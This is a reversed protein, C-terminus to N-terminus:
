YRCHRRSFLPRFHPPTALPPPLPSFSLRRVAAAAAAIAPSIAIIAAAFIFGIAAYRRFHRFIIHPLSTSFRRCYPSFYAFALSFSLWDIFVCHSTDFHGALCYHHRFPPPQRFRFIASPLTAIPPPPTFPLRALPPMNALTAFRCHSLQRFAFHLRSAFIDAPPLTPMTFVLPLSVADAPSFRSVSLQFLRLTLPMDAITIVAFSIFHPWFLL